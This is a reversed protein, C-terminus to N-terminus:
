VATWYFGTLLTSVYSASKIVGELGAHSTLGVKHVEMTSGVSNLGHSVPCLYARQRSCRAKNQTVNPYQQFWPTSSCSVLDLQLRVFENWPLTFKLHRPSSFGTASLVCHPQRVSRKIFSEMHTGSGLHFLQKTNLLTARACKGLPCGGGKGEM